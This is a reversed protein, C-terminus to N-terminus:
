ELLVGNVVGDKGPRSTIRARGQDTEIIAGKVLINRRVYNPNSQNEIVSHIKGITTKGTKTDNLSVRNESMVRVLSNGGTKRYNKRKPEGIFTWQKETSIETRRKGRALVKRGGTSKRRSKGHWHAM